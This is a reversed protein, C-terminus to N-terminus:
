LKNKVQQAVYLIETAIERSRITYGEVPNTDNDFEKPDNFDLSVRFSAGPVFPCAESASSCTMIAGFDETPNAPDEILKSFLELPKKEESFFLKHHPNPEENGEEIKFGQAKFTAVTNPHVSTVETGASFTEIGEIGLYEAATQMWVQGLHSRRSNHTCIFNLRSVGNEKIQTVISAAMGSLLEKRNEPISHLEQELEKLIQNPTM